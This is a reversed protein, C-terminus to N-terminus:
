IANITSNVGAATFYLHLHVCAGELTGGGTIAIDTVGSAEIIHKGNPWKEMDNSALLTVGTPIHLETHSQTISLGAVLFTKGAPLM